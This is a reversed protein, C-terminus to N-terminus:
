FMERPSRHCRIDVSNIIVDWSRALQKQVDLLLVLESKSLAQLPEIGTGADGTSKLSPTRSLQYYVTPLLGDFDDPFDRALKIADLIFPNNHRGIVSPNDPFLQGESGPFPPMSTDMAGPNASSVVAPFNSPFGEFILYVNGEPVWHVEHMRFERKLKQSPIHPSAEEEFKRKSEKVTPSVPTLNALPDLHSREM